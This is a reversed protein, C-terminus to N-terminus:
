AIKAMLKRQYKMEGNNGPQDNININRWMKAVGNRRYQWQREGYSM